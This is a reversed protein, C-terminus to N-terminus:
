LEMKEIVEEKLQRLFDKEIDIISGGLDGYEEDLQATLDSKFYYFEKTEFQFKWNEGIILNQSPNKLDQSSFM